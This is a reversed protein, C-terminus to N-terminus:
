EKSDDEHTVLRIIKRAVLKKVANEASRDEIIQTPRGQLTLMSHANERKTRSLNFAVTSADKADIPKELGEMTREIALREGDAAQNVIERMDRVMDAESVRAYDDRIQRYLEAYQGKVWHELQAKTILIGMRELDKITGPYSGHRWALLTLVKIVVQQDESFRKVETPAEPTFKEIPTHKSEPDYPNPFEALEKPM